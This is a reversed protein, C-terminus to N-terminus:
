IAKDKLVRRNASKDKVRMLFGGLWEGSFRDDGSQWRLREKKPQLLGLSADGRPGLYGSKRACATALPFLSPFTYNICSDWKGRLFGLHHQQKRFDKRTSAPIHSCAFSTSPRPWTCFHSPTVMVCSRLQSPWVGDFGLKWPFGQGKRGLPLCSRFNDQFFLLM